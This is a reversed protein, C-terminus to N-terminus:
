TSLDIGRDVQDKILGLEIFQEYVSLNRRNREALQVRSEEDNNNEEGTDEERSAIASQTNVQAQNATLQEDQQTVLERRAQLELQSAKAAVIRDQASPEAPALAARRIQQAKAITAEPSGPVPSLDISVEGSVAYPVGNPGRIFQFQAAGAFQGGVAQHTQEHAKVERDRQALQQIEQEEQQQQANDQANSQDQQQDQNVQLNRAQLAQDRDLSQQEAVNPQNQTAARPATSSLEEVPMFTSTQVREKEISEATKVPAVVPPIVNNISFSNNVQM